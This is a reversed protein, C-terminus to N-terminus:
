LGGIKRGCAALAEGSLGVALQLKRAEVDNDGYPWYRITRAKGRAPRVTLVVERTMDGAKLDIADLRMGDRVGSSWAPGRRRVGKVVKATASAAHDFGSDFGPSVTVRADLCGDFLLEPLPIAAGGDAYKAIDPRLDIKAVVWAASVLGTVVDPGQGPPFQRYHDRMRLIVDDLDAKGATKKRVEEDWKLALFLGRGHPDSSRDGENLRGVVADPTMLGARVLARDTLFSGVGGALWDAPRPPARGLRTQVYAAMHAEVLAHQLGPDPTSVPPAVFGDDRDLFRDSAASRAVLFPGTEDGLYARQAAVAPAAIEALRTAGLRDDSLTVARVVGGAIPRDATQLAPGAFLVSRRVDGVTLPRGQTAHDLDSVTRWDKPLRRWRVAAPTADWGHPTAFVAEGLASVERAGGTFVYRVRLKAGPRHRLVRATPGDPQVTAGSVALDSGLKEPITLRTEGDAEGRFRMEVTIGPPAIALRYEVGPAPSAGLTPLAAAAILFARVM